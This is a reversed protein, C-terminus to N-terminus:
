WNGADEQDGGVPLDLNAERCMCAPPWGGQQGAPQRALGATVTSSDFIGMETRLPQQRAQPADRTGAGGLM